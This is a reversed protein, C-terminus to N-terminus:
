KLIILNFALAVVLFITLFLNKDRKKRLCLCSNKNSRNFSKWLWNSVKTAVCVLRLRLIIKYYSCRPYFSKPSVSLSGGSVVHAGRGPGPLAGTHFGRELPSYSSRGAPHRPCWTLPPYFGFFPSNYDIILIYCKM